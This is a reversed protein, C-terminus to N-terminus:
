KKNIEQIFQYYKKMKESDNDKFNFFKYNEIENPLYTQKVASYSFDHPYKYGLGFGLKSASKYHNDKLHKPIEFVNGQDIFSNAKNFALYASNSKPALAANIIAFAIPLNAEPFGLKEVANFAAEIKLGLLTDALAVDEYAVCMLRRFLGHYDGTKLILAGYYLAADVDSGRLSKHFASLNDYHKSSDKDSYFNMNPIIKKLDGNTIIKENNLLAVLQLNNLANRYDGNSFKVLNFLVDDNINLNPFHKMIIKRLGKKIDDEKLKNFQLIQMRSRLAPNVRFYPVETTTAYIIAEDNELYSLLIDQKDKNLRHIEDIIVIEKEKILALLDNKSDITSNFIGYSKGLDNALAIATSSKGTGSEGFFIFSTTLNNKVINKLLDVINEQGIIDDLTKPRLKNALNKM